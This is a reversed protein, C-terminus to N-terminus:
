EIDSTLMKEYAQSFKEWAEHPVRSLDGDEDIQYHWESDYSTTVTTVLASPQPPRGPRVLGRRMVRVEDKAPSWELHFM